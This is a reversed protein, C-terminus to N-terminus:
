KWAKTLRIMNGIALDVSRSAVILQCRCPNDRELLKALPGILYNVERPQGDGLEPPLDLICFGPYHYGEGGSLSLLAYHYALLFYVRLTGFLESSWESEGVLFRINRQAVRASVCDMDWRLQGHPNLAHLYSNMEEALHDAPLCRGVIMESTAAATSSQDGIIKRGADLLISMFGEKRATLKDHEVLHGWEGPFLKDALGLFTAICAHQEADCQQGALDRWLTEKRYMHQFLSRWSLAPWTRKASPNGSPYHIEPIELARLLWSSFEHNTMGNGDVIVKSVKGREKWRREFVHDTGGINVVASVEDYKEALDVGLANSATDDDGMLYDIITLWKSKGTNPEGVLLNVGTMLKLSEVICGAKRTVSKLFLTKSM